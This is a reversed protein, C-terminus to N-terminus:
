IVKDILDIRAKIQGENILKYLTNHLENFSLNFSAEMEILNVREYPM